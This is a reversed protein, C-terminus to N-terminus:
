LIIGLFADDKRDIADFSFLKDIKVEGNENVTGASRSRFVISNELGRSEMISKLTKGYPTDLIKIEAWLSDGAIWVDQVDHSVKNLLIDPASSEPFGIQGFFAGIKNRKEKFDSVMKEAAERTYVRENLNKVGIILVKETITNNEM